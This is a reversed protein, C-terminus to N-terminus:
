FPGAFALVRDLFAPNELGFLRLAGLMLTHLVRNTQPVYLLAFVLLLGVRELRMYAARAEGRLLVTVVRSGDLPPIPILNFLMLMVNTCFYLYLGNLTWFPVARWELVPWDVGRYAMTTERVLWGWQSPAEVAADGARLALLLVIGALLAQALNALPGAIATIWYAQRPDRCRRLDIPVPKAGGFLIRSGSLALFGPLIVSMFPDVHRLPNLSLRGQEKATPDGCLLAAWGHAVEHLMIAPILAAFALLAIITKESM